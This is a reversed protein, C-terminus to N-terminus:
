GGGSTGPGPGPGPSTPPTPPQALNGSVSGFVSTPSLGLRPGRWALGLGLLIAPAIISIAQASIKLAMLGWIAGATLAVLLLIIAADATRRARSPASELVPDARTDAEDLLALWRGEGAREALTVTLRALEDLAPTGERFVGAVAARLAHQVRALYETLERKREPSGYVHGADTFRTLSLITLEVQRDLILVDKEGDAVDKCAMLVAHCDLLLLVPVELGRIRPASFFRLDRVLWIFTVFLVASTVAQREGLRGEPMASTLLSGVVGGAVFEALIIWIWALFGARATEALRLREALEAEPLAFPRGFRAATATLAEPDCPEPPNSLLWRNYRGLRRLRRWPRSKRLWREYQARVILALMAGYSTGAAVMFIAGASM